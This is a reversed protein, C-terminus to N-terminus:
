LTDALPSDHLPIPRIDILAGGTQPRPSPQSLVPLTFADMLAAPANDLIICGISAANLSAAISAAAM